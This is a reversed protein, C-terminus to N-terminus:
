HSQTRRSREVLESESFVRQILVAEQKNIRRIKRAVSEIDRLAKKTSEFLRMPRPPICPCKASCKRGSLPADFATFPVDIEIVISKERTGRWFGTTPLLTFGDFKASVARIIRERNKDETVIRYLM